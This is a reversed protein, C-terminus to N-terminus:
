IGSLPGACATERIFVGDVQLIYRSTGEIPNMLYQLHFGEHELFRSVSDFTASGQYLAHLSLESIVIKCTKVTQSAGRLVNDEYGQVDMLLLDIPPAGSERLVDDLPRIQVKVMSQEGLFPFEQVALPEYPLLSSASAYRDVYMDLLANRVGAALNFPHMHPRTATNQVLVRYTQPMPEFLYFVRGPFADDFALAGDGENAGVYAITRIGHKQFLAHFQVWVLRATPSLLKWRDGPYHDALFCDIQVEPSPVYRVRSIRNLLKFLFTGDHLSKLIRHAMRM